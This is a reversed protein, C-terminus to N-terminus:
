VFGWCGWGTHLRVGTCVLAWTSWCALRALGLRGGGGGSRSTTCLAFMSRGAGVANFESISERTLIAGFDSVRSQQFQLLVTTVKIRTAPTSCKYGQDKYGSYFLQLRSGQIQLLVTTIKIRTAPTSCNYGQDKYGSYFM